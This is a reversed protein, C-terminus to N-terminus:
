TLTALDEPTDIDVAAAEFTVPKLRFRSDRFLARAGRDGTQALLAQLSDAAFLVPPGETGAFSSAVIENDAGSWTDILAELHEATVLPQDALLLLLADAHPQCARAAAAISTGLGQAYDENVVVFGPYSPLLRLLIQWDHGLVTIVRNDCVEAATKIARVILPTGDIKAAQKTAGFRSSQGAALVAAFITPQKAPKM